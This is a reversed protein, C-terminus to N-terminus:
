YASVHQRNEEAEHTTYSQKSYFFNALSTCYTRVYVYIYIYVMHLAVVSHQAGNTPIVSFLSVAWIVNRHKMSWM